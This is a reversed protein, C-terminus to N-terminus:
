NAFRERGSGTFHKRYQPPLDNLIKAYTHQQSFSYFKATIVRSCWSNRSKRCMTVSCVRATHYAHVNRSVTNARVCWKFQWHRDTKTERLLCVCVPSPLNFLMKEKQMFICCNAILFPLYFFKLSLSVPMDCLISLGSVNSSKREWINWWTFILYYM